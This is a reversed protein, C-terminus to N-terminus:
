SNYGYLDFQNYDSIYACNQEVLTNLTTTTGGTFLTVMDSSPTFQYVTDIDEEDRSGFWYYDENNQTTKVIYLKQYFEYTNGNYTVTHTSSGDCAIVLNFFTQNDYTDYDDSFVVFEVPALVGSASSPIWLEIATGDGNHVIGGIISEENDVRTIYPTLSPAEPAGAVQPLGQIVARYTNAAINSTSNMKITITSSSVSVEAMVQTGTSVEFVQVQVDATGITNSITWTCVGSSATLAGNNSAIIRSALFTTLKLPTVIRQDDTGANTEAQTALEAIGAASETAQGPSASIEVYTSGSWRYTKNQYDGSEVIVYIKDTEPTLASGGSTKSLWGASLATAGSVIYADIVDDVFSPLQSTPVKGDAGLTAVGSNAGLLSTAVYTSSLDPIDSSSLDAGATILGQNNYTVKCKTAGTVTNDISIVNNTIDIGSGESYVEGSIWQTGDYTYLKHDTTNFYVQGAVPNSPASGLNQIVANQLENKNLDLDVRIPQKAM